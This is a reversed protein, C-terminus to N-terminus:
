SLDPLNTDHFGVDAFEGNGHEKTFDENKGIQRRLIRYQKQIWRKEYTSYMSLEYARIQQIEFIHKIKQHRIYINWAARHKFCQQRWNRNGKKLNAIAEKRQLQANILWSARVGEGTAPICNPKLSQNNFHQFLQFKKEM